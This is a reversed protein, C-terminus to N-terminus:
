KFLNEFLLSPHPRLNKLNSVSSNGSEFIQCFHVTEHVQIHNFGLYLSDRNWSWDEFSFKSNARTAGSKFPLKILNQRTTIFSSTWPNNLIVTLKNFSDGTDPHIIFENRDKMVFFTIFPHYVCDLISDNVLIQQYTKLLWDNCWVDGADVFGVYKSEGKIVTANRSLGVDKFDYEFISKPENNSYAIDKTVQDANDLSIYVNVINANPLLEINRKVSNLTELLRNQEKHATIIIDFMVKTYRSV